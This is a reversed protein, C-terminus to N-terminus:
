VKLQCLKVNNDLCTKQMRARVKPRPTQGSNKEQFRAASLMEIEDLSTKKMLFCAADVSECDALNSTPPEEEPPTFDATECPILRAGLVGIDRRQQFDRLMQSLWGSHPAMVTADLFLLDEGRACRAVAASSGPNWSQMRSALRPIRTSFSNMSKKECIFVSFSLSLMMSLNEAELLAHMEIQPDDVAYIIECDRLFPDNQFSALQVRMLCPSQSLYIILSCKPNAPPIGYDHRSLGRPNIESGDPLDPFPRTLSRNGAPKNGCRLLVYGLTLVEAQSTRAILKLFKLGPKTTFKILFPFKDGQFNKYLSGEIVREGLVAGVREVNKEGQKHLFGTLSVSTTTSAFLL